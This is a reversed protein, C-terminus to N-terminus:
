NDSGTDESFAASANPDGYIHSLVDLTKKIGGVVRKKPPIELSEEESSNEPCHGIPIQKKGRQRREYRSTRGNLEKQQKEVLHPIPQENMSPDPPLNIEVDM